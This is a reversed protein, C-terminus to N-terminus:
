KIDLKPYKSQLDEVIGATKCFNNFFLSRLKIREEITNSASQYINNWPNLISDPTDAISASFYALPFSNLGEVGTMSSYQNDVQSTPNIASEKNEKMMQRLKNLREIRKQHRKKFESFDPFEKGDKGHNESRDLDIQKEMTAIGLPIYQNYPYTEDGRHFYPSAEFGYESGYPENYSYKELINKM